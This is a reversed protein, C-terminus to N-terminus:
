KRLSDLLGLALGAIALAHSRMAPSCHDLTSPAQGRESISRGLAEWALASGATHTPTMSQVVEESIPATGSRLLEYQAWARVSQPHPGPPSREQLWGFLRGGVATAKNRGIAQSLRILPWDPLDRSGWDKELLSVCAEFDQNAAAADSNAAVLVQAAFRDEIRGPLQAVSRAKDIEGRRALGEAFGLRMNASPEGETPLSAQPLLNAKDLVVHLAILKPTPQTGNLLSRGAAAFEEAQARGAAGRNWIELGAAALPEIQVEPRALVNSGTLVLLVPSKGGNLGVQRALREYALAIGDPMPFERVEVLAGMTKRLDGVLKDWEIRDEPTRAVADGGLQAQSLVIETLILLRELAKYSSRAEGAPIREQAQILLKNAEVFNPHTDHARYDAAARRVEAAVLPPTEKDSAIELARAMFDDRHKTTRHSRILLVGLVVAATALVGIVTWMTKSIVSPKVRRTKLANAEALADRSVISSTTTNGWAGVLNPDDVRKALTPKHDAAKWNRAKPDTVQPVRVPYKCAPCQAQKGAFKVDVKVMEVCRPCEFEIQDPLSIDSKSEALAEIALNEVEPSVPAPSAAPVRLAADCDKCTVTRGVLEDKVKYQKGCESCSFAIAM